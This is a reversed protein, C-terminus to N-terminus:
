KVREITNNKLGYIADHPESLAYIDEKCAETYVGRLIRGACGHSMLILSEGEVDTLWSSLRTAVMAYSEGGPPPNCWRNARTTQYAEADNQEIDAVKYGEWRGFSREKVRDEYEILKPDYGLEQAVLIASQRCRGLPSSIFRLNRNVHKRLIFGNQRAQQKGRQTLKSDLHGQLRNETNWLTEGHRLLLIHFEISM